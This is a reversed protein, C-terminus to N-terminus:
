RAPSPRATHPSLHPTHKQTHPHTWIFIYIYTHTNAHWRMWVKDRAVLCLPKSPDFATPAGGAWAGEVLAAISDFRTRKLIHDVLLSSGEIQESGKSICRLLIGSPATAWGCALDLGKYTGGKYGRGLKHFYWTGSAHQDEHGHAFVDEHVNTRFYLEAEEITYQEDAIQLHLDKIVYDGLEFLLKELTASAKDFDGAEEAPGAAESAPESAPKEAAKAAPEGLASEVTAAQDQQGKKAAADAAPASASAHDDAPEATPRARKAKPEDKPAAEAKGPKATAGKSLLLKTEHGAEEMLAVHAKLKSLIKNFGDM